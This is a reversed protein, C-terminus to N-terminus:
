TGRLANVPPVSAIRLAPVLAGITAMAAAMLIAECITWASPNGQVLSSTVHWKQMFFMLGFGCPIGVALGVAALALSENLILRVVRTKRWGMARLAGIEARREFVTIAMTNLVGLAGILGAMASIIWSMARTVRLQSVSRVFEACPIAAVNPDLAEIGRQLATIAAADGPPNAQVLFGTVQGPRDMQRQLDSLLMFVSGNEYVNLTEFVGVIKFKHAYIEVTEGFRKSLNAALVRGLMVCDKDSTTLRRGTLLKARDIVSGASPLMGEVFVTYLGREEFAVLDLLGGSVLGAQPLTRIRDGFSEAMGRSVQVMGGRRQVVLDAGRSEYLALYSNELSEAAGVLSVVAAIAVALGAVTLLSRGPRRVLNKVAITVFRM